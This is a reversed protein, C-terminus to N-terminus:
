EERQAQRRAMKELLRVAPNSAAASQRKLMATRHTCSANPMHSHVFRNIDIAPFEVQTRFRGTRERSSM